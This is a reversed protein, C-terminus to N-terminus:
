GLTEEDAECVGHMEQGTGTRGDRNTGTGWTAFGVATREQGSQQEQAPGM